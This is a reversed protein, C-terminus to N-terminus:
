YINPPWGGSGWNFPDISYNNESDIEGGKTPALFVTAKQSKANNYAAFYIRIGPADIGQKASEDKVYDLFEQLEEVSYIFERQDQGQAKTIEAGRTAVWNDQLKRADAVSICKSPKAM